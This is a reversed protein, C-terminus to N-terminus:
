VSSLTVHVLKDRMRPIRNFSTAIVLAAITVHVIQQSWLVLTGRDEDLVFKTFVQILTCPYKYSAANIHKGFINRVLPNQSDKVMTCSEVVLFRSLLLYNVQELRLIRAPKQLEKVMSHKFM